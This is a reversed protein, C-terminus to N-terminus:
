NQTSNNVFYRPNITIVKVEVYDPNDSSFSDDDDDSDFSDSSLDETDRCFLLFFFM